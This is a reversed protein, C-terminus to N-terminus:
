QPSQFNALNAQAISVAEQEEESLNILKEANGWVKVRVEDPWIQKAFDILATGSPVGEPPAEIDNLMGGWLGFRRLLDDNGKIKNMTEEPVEYCTLDVQEETDTKKDGPGTVSFVVLLGLLALAGDLCLLLKLINQRGSEKLNFKCCTVM